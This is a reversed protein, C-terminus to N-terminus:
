LRGNIQINIGNSFGAQRGVPMNADVIQVGPLTTALEYPSVSFIPLKRMYTQGITGALQGNETNISDAAVSVTKQVSGVVLKIDNATVLSPEVIVNNAKFGEFGQQQVTVTYTEPNLADLRDSGDSKTAIARTDGDSNGIITVRANPVVAGSADRAVGVLIGKSTRAVAGIGALLYGTTLVVMLSNMKM